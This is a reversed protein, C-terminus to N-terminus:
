NENRGRSPGPSSVFARLRALVEERNGYNLKLMVTNKDAKLRDCFANPASMITAIVLRESRWLEIIYSRFKQSLLEMKGIEDIVVPQASASHLELGLVRELANIDVRYKGVCHISKMETHALVERCGSLGVIEFGVRRGADRIERTTFGSAPMGIEAILREILTTKGSGPLGSLLLKSKRPSDSQM